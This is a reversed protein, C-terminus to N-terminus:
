DGDVGDSEDDGRRRKSGVREDWDRSAVHFGAGGPAYVREAARARWAVLKGAVRGAIRWRRMRARLGVAHQIAGVLALAAPGDAVLRDVGDHFEGEPSAGARILLPVLEVLDHREPLDPRSRAHHLLLALPGRVDPRRTPGANIRRTLAANAGHELLLRICSLHGHEALNCLATDDFDDSDRVDPHAGAELLERLRDFSCAAWNSASRVARFWAGERKAWEELLKLMARSERQREVGSATASVRAALAAPRTIGARSSDSAARASAGRKLLTHALEVNCSVIAHHLPYYGRRSRACVNAGRDLLCVAADLFGKHAAVHLATEGNDNRADVRVGGRLLWVLAHAHGRSAAWHLASGFKDRCNLLDLPALGAQAAQASCVSAFETEMADVLGDRAAELFRHAQTELAGCSVPRFNLAIAPLPDVHSM